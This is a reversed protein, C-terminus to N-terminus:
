PRQSTTDVVGRALVATSSVLDGAELPDCERKPAALNVVAEGMFARAKEDFILEARAKGQSGRIAAGFAGSTDLAVAVGTRGAADKADEVAILGPIEAIARYLAAAVKPPLLSTTLLNGAKAFANVDAAKSGSTKEGPELGYLWRRMAEPDTPLEEAQRYFNVMNKGPLQPALSQETEEGNSKPKRSLGERRGDVSEWLERVGTEYGELTMSCGDPVGKEPKWHYTERKTYIFQDNKIEGPAEEGPAAALRELLPDPDETITPQAMPSETTADRTVGVGVAIAITLTAAALPAVFAPRRWFTRVPQDRDEESGNRRAQATGIERMLHERLVQHRGPPLDKEPIESM